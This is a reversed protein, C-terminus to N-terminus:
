MIITTIIVTSNNIMVMGTTFQSTSTETIPKGKVKSEFMEKWGAKSLVETWQSRSQPRGDKALQQAVQEKHSATNAM